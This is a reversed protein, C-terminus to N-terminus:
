RKGRLFTQGDRREVEVGFNFELLRVFTRVDGAPLAGGVSLGAIAPDAIVLRHPSYRNFEEVVERLPAPGFEFRQEQWALRRSMEQATVEAVVVPSAPAREVAAEPIIARQGAALLPAGSSAAAPLVSQRQAADLVRVRGETVMVEVAGSHLRINFATGVARVNIGGVRVFFPRAEDKAVAFHAEGRVLEVRREAADFNITVASDTNLVITSGDPLNMRRLGGVETAATALFDRPPGLQWWSISAVALAAALGVALRWRRRPRPAVSRLLPLDPEVKTNGAPRFAALGDLLQSAAELRAFERAHRPDARRWAELESEEAATLGGDRRALWDGAVKAIAARRAPYGHEASPNM